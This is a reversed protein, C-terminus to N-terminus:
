RREALFSALARVEDPIVSLPRGELADMALAPVPAIKAAISEEPLKETFIKQVMPEAKNLVFFLDKNIKKAMADMATAMLLSERTPDLVGLLLDAEADVGRGFHEVGAESDVIVVEDDAIALNGLLKKALVGVMCACGEGFDRIKGVSVLRVGDSSTLCEGPIQDTVIKASFMPVPNLDGAAKLKERVGPRGGLFDMLPRGSKAGLLLGLGFNSEDADVLLVKKGSEAYAKALLAAVTSKGSGGKGMIMIKM